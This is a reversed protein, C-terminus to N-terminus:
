KLTCDLLELLSQIIRAASSPHMLSLADISESVFTMFAFDAAWFICIKNTKETYRNCQNIAVNNVLAELNM